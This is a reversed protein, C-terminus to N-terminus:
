LVNASLEVDWTDVVSGSVPRIQFTVITSNLGSGSQDNSWTRDSTLALWTNLTGNTPAPSATAYVEYNSTAGSPTIGQELLNDSPTGDSNLIERAEGTTTLKYGASATSVGGAAITQNTFDVVVNSGAALLMQLSGTM